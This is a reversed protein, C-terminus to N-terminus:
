NSVVEQSFGITVRLGYVWNSGGITGGSTKSLNNANRWYQVDPSLGINETIQWRYYLEAVIPDAANPKNQDKYDSSLGSWSVGLGIVHDDNYSHEASASVHTVVEDTAKANNGGFRLSWATSEGISGDVNAYIGFVSKKNGAAAPDFQTVEKTRSWAGVTLGVITPIRAEGLLFFGKQLGQENKGFQFLDGYNKKANDGLGYANAALFTFGIEDEEGYNFVVSPTYDPFAITPNNVLSGALFQSGEDNAAATADVFATLDQVGLSVNLANVDLSYALESLQFRGRDNTDLATGADANSGGIVSNASTTDTTSGEVYVYLTGPGVDTTVAFDVSATVDKNVTKQDKSPQQGVITAGGEISIDAWAPISYVLCAAVAWVLIKINRFYMAIGLIIERINRVIELRLLVRLHISDVPEADVCTIANLYTKIFIEIM